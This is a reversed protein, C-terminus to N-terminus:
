YFISVFLLISRQSWFLNPFCRKRVMAIAERMFGEHRARDDGDGTREEEGLRASDMEPAGQM